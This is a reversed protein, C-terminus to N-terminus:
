REKGRCIDDGDLLGVLLEAQQVVDLAAEGDVADAVLLGLYLTQHQTISHNHNTPVYVTQQQTISHHHNAPKHPQAV